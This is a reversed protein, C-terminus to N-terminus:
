VGRYTDANEHAMPCSIGVLEISDQELETHRTIVGWNVRDWFQDFAQQGTEAQTYWGDYERQGTYRNFGTYHIRYERM